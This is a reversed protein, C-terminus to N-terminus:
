DAGLSAVVPRSLARRAPLVSALLAAVVAVAVILGIRAWPLVLTFDGGIRAVM